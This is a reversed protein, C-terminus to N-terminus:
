SCKIEETSTKRVIIHPTNILNDPKSENKFAACDKDLYIHIVPNDKFRFFDFDIRLGDMELEFQSPMNEFTENGLKLRLKGDNTHAAM